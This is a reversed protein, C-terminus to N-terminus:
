SLSGKPTAKKNQLLRRSFLFLPQRRIGPVALKNINLGNPRFQRTKM